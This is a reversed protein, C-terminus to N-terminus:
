RAASPALWTAVFYAVGYPAGDYRLRARWRPAGADPTLGPLAHESPTPGHKSVAGALVQWPARGACMLEAALGADLAMLAETDAEALAIAVRADFAEARPDAYGPAKEGRCASGDGMVLLAWPRAAPQPLPWSACAASSATVPVGCMRVPLGIGRLLWAAVTLSLPLPEPSMDTWSGAPAEPLSIRLPVGFGAFSGIVPGDPRAARRCGAPATVIGGAPGGRAPALGAPGVGTPEAGVVTVSRAGSGRLCEIAAACAARLEDLEVAAGSAVEPVLLPPHPCVAAAVLPV